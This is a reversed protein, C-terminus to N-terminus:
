KGIIHSISGRITVNEGNSSPRYERIRFSVLNDIIVGKQKLEFADEKEFVVPVMSEVYGRIFGHSISKIRAVLNHDPRLSLVLAEVKVPCTLIGNDEGEALFVMDSRPKLKQWGVWCGYLEPVFKFLFPVLSNTLGIKSDLTFQPHLHLTGELELLRYNDNISIGEELDELELLTATRRREELLRGYNESIGDVASRSFKSIETLNRNLIKNIKKRRPKSISLVDWPIQAM